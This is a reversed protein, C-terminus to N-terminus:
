LSGQERTPVEVPCLQASEILRMVSEDESKGRDGADEDRARPPHQETRITVEVARLERDDVLKFRLMQLDMEELVFPLVELL